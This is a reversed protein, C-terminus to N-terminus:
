RMECGRGEMQALANRVHTLPIESVYGGRYLGVRLVWGDRLGQVIGAMQHLSDPELMCANGTCSAAILSEGDGDFELVLTEEAGRPSMGNLFFAPYGGNGCEVTMSVGRLGEGTAIGAPDPAADYTWEAWAAAPLFCLAFAIAKLSM